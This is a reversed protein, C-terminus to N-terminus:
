SNVAILVTLLVLFLTLVILGIRNIVKDLKQKNKFVTRAFSYLVIGATLVLFFTIVILKISKNM